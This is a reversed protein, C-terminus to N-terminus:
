DPDPNSRRKHRYVKFAFEHHKDIPHDQLLETDWDSFDFVPLVADGTIEADVITEYVTGANPLAATFISVGGIVFIHESKSKGLAIADYLSHVLEVGEVTKYDQQTSIVINLRGPLASEHDEYTKRGMIIPRGMTISEFHAFENPLHWPVQGNNGICRDLSRAYILSIM